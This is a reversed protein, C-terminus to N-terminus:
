FLDRDFLFILVGEKRKNLCCVKTSPAIGGSEVKGAVLLGSQGMQNKFIDNVTFRLPYEVPRKM